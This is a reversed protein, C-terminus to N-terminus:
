YHYILERARSPRKLRNIAKAEIQRIRERSLDYLEGIQELTLEKGYFGFRLKIVEREREPLADLVERIKQEQLERILQEEVDAYSSTDALYREQWTGKNKGDRPNKFPPADINVFNSGIVNRIISQRMGDYSGQSSYGDDVIGSEEMLGLAARRESSDQLVSRSQHWLYVPIRILTNNHASRMMGAASNYTVFTKVHREWSVGEEKKQLKYNKLARIIGISGEQM